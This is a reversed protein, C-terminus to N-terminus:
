EHLVLFPIEKHYSIKKAVPHFLIHQFFNLNKAMMAIMQVDHQVM